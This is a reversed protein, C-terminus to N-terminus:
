SKSLRKKFANYLESKLERVIKQLQWKNMECEVFYMKFIEELNGSYGGCGPIPVSGDHTIRIHKLDPDNKLLDFYLQGHYVSLILDVSKNLSLDEFWDIMKIVDSIFLSAFIEINGIVLNFGVDNHEFDDGVVLGTMLEYEHPDFPILTFELKQNDIGDFIM